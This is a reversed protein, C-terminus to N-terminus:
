HTCVSLGRPTKRMIPKHCRKHYALDCGSCTMPSPQFSVNNTIICSRQWEIHTSNRDTCIFMGDALVCCCLKKLCQLELCAEYFSHITSFHSRLLVFFHNSSSFFFFLDYCFLLPGFFCFCFDCSTDLAAEATHGLLWVSWVWVSQSGWVSFFLKSRVCM